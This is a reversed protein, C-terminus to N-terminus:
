VNGYIRQIEMFEAYDSQLMYYRLLTKMADRMEIDNALDEAEFSRLNPKLRLNRIDECISQFDDMLVQAVINGAEGVEIEMPRTVNVSYM